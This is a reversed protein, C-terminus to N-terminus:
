KTILAGTRPNQNRKKDPIRTLLEKDNRTVKIKTKTEKPQVM